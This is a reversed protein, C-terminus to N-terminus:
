ELSEALFTKLEAFVALRCTQVTMEHDCDSREFFRHQKNAQRLARAFRKSQSVPVVPDRSGHMVLVPTEVARVRAIPSMQWLARSDEGLRWRWVEADRLREAYQSLALLDAVGAFSAACSYWQSERAAGLLAAYGGFSSGFICVRHPDAIKREILWRTGDSIDNHIVGGWQGVGAAAFAAGYGTSGRFNMQLVAYGQAALFQVFPDFSKANRAEPGGHPYVIAPLNESKGIPLTLFAPIVQGDRARYTMFRMPALPQGELEPYHHGILTLATRREDYLYLSPPEVDSGSLVLQRRNDASRDIVTNIAGPLQEDLWAATAVASPDLFHQRESEATFQVGLLARTEPHLIIPGTIDYLDDAFLLSVTQPQDVDMRFLAARGKSYKLAFLESSNSGFALPRVTDLSALFQELLVRWSDDGGARVFLSAVGQDYGMGLQVRGRGDSMWRRVPPRARVVTRMEGSRINLESVQAFGRGLPDHQLLVRGTGGSAGFDIIEDRILERSKANLERVHLTAVHIAYLRTTETFRDPARYPGVTGCLLEDNGAWDCWRVRERNSDVSLTRVTAGSELTRVLVTQKASTQEVFSLSAGDPSLSPLAFAPARAYRHVGDDAPTEAYSASLAALGLM